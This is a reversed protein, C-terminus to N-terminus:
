EKWNKRSKKSYVERKISGMIRLRSITTQYSKIKIIRSTIKIEVDNVIRFQISNM